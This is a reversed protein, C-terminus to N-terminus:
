PAVEAPIGRALRSGATRHRCDLTIGRARASAALLVFSAAATHRIERYERSPTLCLGIACDGNEQLQYM